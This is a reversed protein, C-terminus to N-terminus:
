AITREKTDPVAPAGATDAAADAAPRFLRLMIGIYYALGLFSGVFALTAAVVHGSAIVSKFIFVKAFFGPLPPVGALSLVAAALLLSTVPRRAFLGDLRDLSDDDGPCLAAFSACALVTALGYVLSYILLDNGRSGTTDLLAFVMYGAHAISSYALLRRLRPQRLAALNGYVISVVALVAVVTTAAGSLGSTGFVRVLALVVAAKVVSAMLATAPMRAVGYADPAWAHFPFVAAKLFLGSAILLIAAQAQLGGALFLDAFDDLRLTGTLGYALSAGFLFLASAVSSLLLYKFAGESAATRGQDLVILAFAPLSLLEIGIFLTAFSQSGLMLLGGLLSGAALIWFKIGRSFGPFWTAVGFGCLLLVLKGAVAFRDAGLEGAVVNATYGTDFQHWACAIAGVVGAVFVGQGWREGARLAELVMLVVVVGLLLLDPGLTYFFDSPM